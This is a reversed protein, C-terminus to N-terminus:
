RSNYADCLGLDPCLSPHRVTALGIEQLYEIRCAALANHYHLKWISATLKAEFKESSIGDSSPLRRYVM